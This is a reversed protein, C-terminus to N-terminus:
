KCDFHHLLYTREVSSWCEYSVKSFGKEWATAGTGVWSSLLRSVTTWVGFKTLFLTEFRFHL